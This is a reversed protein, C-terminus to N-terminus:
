FSKTALKSNQRVKQIALIFWLIANTASMIFSYWLSLTLFVYAQPLLFVFTMLSTSIRPKDKGIVSPVLAINFALVCIALVLDQWQIM